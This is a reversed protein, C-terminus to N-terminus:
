FSRSRSTISLSTRRAVRLIARSGDSEQSVASSSGGTAPGPAEELGVEPARPKWEASHANRPWQPASGAPGDQSGAPAPPGGQPKSCAPAAVEQGDAWSPPVGRRQFGHVAM